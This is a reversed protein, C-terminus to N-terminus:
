PKVVFIKSIGTIRTDFHLWGASFAGDEITTLGKDLWYEQNALIDARVEDPTANKSNSDFGRGFRHQSFSAGIKCDPPRFGRYQNNGGWSWDNVVTSGFRNRIADLVKLAVPDLFWISSQGYKAYTDRDVLEQISFHKPIM